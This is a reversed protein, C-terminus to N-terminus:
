LLRGLLLGAVFALGTAIWVARRLTGVADRYNDIMREVRPPIARGPPFHVLLRDDYEITVDWNSVTQTDDFDNVVVTGVRQHYSTM